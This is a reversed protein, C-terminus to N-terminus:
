QFDTEESRIPLDLPQKLKLNSGPPPLPLKIFIHRSSSCVPKLKVKGLVVTLTHM